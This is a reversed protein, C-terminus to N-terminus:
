QYDKLIVKSDGQNVRKQASRLGQYEGWFYVINRFPIKIISIIKFSKIYYSIERLSRMMIGKIMELISPSKKYIFFDAEGEIFKRGYLQKLTYNHSHMTIAKPTYIIEGLNKEKIRKGWESDESGWSDTYFKEKEWVSKRFASLPFSLHIYSPLNPTEPFANIYDRQVWLESDHRPLQRGVTAVCNKMELLPNVLHKLSDEELLVSDSNLMIIFETNISELADNIVKGPIYSSASIEHPTIKYSKLIDLTADTSGSDIVRIDFELSQSYLSALTQRLVWDSNKTRMLVTFRSM